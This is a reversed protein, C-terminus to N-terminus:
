LIRQAEGSIYLVSLPFFYFDFKGRVHDHNGPRSDPALGPNIEGLLHFNLNYGQFSLLQSPIRVKVHGVSLKFDSQIWKSQRGITARTYKLLGEERFM